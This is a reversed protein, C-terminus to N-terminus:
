GTLPTVCLLSPNPHRCLFSLTVPSLPFALSSELSGSCGSGALISALLVVRCIILRPVKVSRQICVFINGFIGGLPAGAGFAGFAIDKTRGPPFTVGLIGLATPAMAAAALGQLGRFINFGIENSLFPPVISTATFAVSGWLFIM